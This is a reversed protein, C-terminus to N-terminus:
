VPKDTAKTVSLDGPGCQDRVIDAFTDGLTSYEAEHVASTDGGALALVLGGDPYGTAPPVPTGAPVTVPQGDIELTVSDGTVAPTGRDQHDIAYM